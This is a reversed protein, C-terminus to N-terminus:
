GTTQSSTLRAKPHKLEHPKTFHYIFVCSNGGGCLQTEWLWSHVGLASGIGPALEILWLARSNSDSNAPPLKVSLWCSRAKFKGPTICHSPLSTVEALRWYGTQLIPLCLGLAQRM